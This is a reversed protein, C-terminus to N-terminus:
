RQESSMNSEGTIMRLHEQLTPLTQAAWGKLVPDNGNVAENQFLAITDKHAQTQQSIYKQDFDAGNLGQLENIMQKQDANPATNATLGKQQAAQNLQRNAMTHDQIMHEAIMRVHADQTKQLALQSAQVEYAGGSSAQEVFRRDMDSVDTTQVRNANTTGSTMGTDASRADNAADNRASSDTSPSSSCAAMGMALGALLMARTMMFNEQFRWDL